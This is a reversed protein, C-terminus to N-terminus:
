ASFAFSMFSSHKEGPRLISSPFNARNPADPFNPNNVTIWERAIEPNVAQINDRPYVVDMNGLVTSANVNVLGKALAEGKPFSQNITAVQPTADGNRNQENGSPNPMRTNWTGTTPLPDPGEELWVNLWHSAFVRGGQSEYQYMAERTGM